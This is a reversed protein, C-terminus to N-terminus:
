VPNGHPHGVTLFGSEFWPFCPFSACERMSVSVVSSVLFGKASVRGSFRYLNQVRVIAKPWGCPGGSRPAFSFSLFPSAAAL